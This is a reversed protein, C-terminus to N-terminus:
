KKKPPIQNTKTAPAKEKKMLSKRKNTSKIQFLFEALQTRFEIYKISYYQRFVTYSNITLFTLLSIVFKTRYNNVGYKFSAKSFKRDMLDVCNFHNHYYRHLLPIKNYNMAQIHQLINQAGNPPNNCLKLVKDVLIPKTKGSSKFGNSLLINRLMACTCKRNELQERTYRTGTSSVTMSIEKSPMEFANSMIRHYCDKDATECKSKIISSVVNDGNVAAAWHGSSNIGRKM